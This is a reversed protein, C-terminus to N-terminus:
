LERTQPTLPAVPGILWWRIDVTAGYAQGATITGAQIPGLDGLAARLNRDATAAVGEASGLNRVAKAVGPAYKAVQAVETDIPGSPHTALM